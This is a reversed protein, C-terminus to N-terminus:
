FAANSLMILGYLHLIHISTVFQFLRPRLVSFDEDANLNCFYRTEPEFTQRSAPYEEERKHEELSHRKNGIYKM